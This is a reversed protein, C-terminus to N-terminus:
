GMIEAFSKGLPPAEVTIRNGPGVRYLELLSGTLLVQGRALQLGFQALRSALWRLPGVLTSPTGRQPDAGVLADNIRVNVGEWTDPVGHCTPQEALVFGAHMGNLAILHPGASSGPKLVYDHLEIVPFVSEIAALYEEDSLATDPLDSSLRIAIEGEVALNAFRTYSLRVGPPHCGTNFLRGFIPQDVGLQQQIATSTCGVKYGIVKEGREDRLRTIEHQLEYGLVTNLAVSQDFLRPVTKADYDALLRAAMRRLEDNGM